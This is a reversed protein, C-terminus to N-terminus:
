VCNETKLVLFDGQKEGTGTEILNRGIARVEDREFGHEAIAQLIGDAPYINHIRCDNQELVSVFLARRDQDVFTGEAIAASPAVCLLAM